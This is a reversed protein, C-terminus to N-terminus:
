SGMLDLRQHRFPVDHTISNRFPPLGGNARLYKGYSTKFKVLSSVKIPEWEISSDLKMPLNQVVKPGTVGLLFQENTALLYKGYCSKLRVVNDMGEGFEIRWKASKCSGDRHQFVGKKMQILMCSNGM